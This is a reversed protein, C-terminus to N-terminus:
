SGLAPFQIMGEEVESDDLAILKYEIKSFGPIVKILACSDDGIFDKVSSKCRISNNIKWRRVADVDRYKKAHLSHKVSSGMIEHIVFTRNNTQVKLEAHYSCHLDGTLFTTRHINNEAIFQIIRNRQDEFQSSDWKDEAFISIVPGIIGDINGVFPIATVIFKMKTAHTQLWTKLDQEQAESIMLHDHTQSNHPRRDLRVDMVFFEAGSCHFSYYFKNEGFSHPNHSHQFRQYEEVAPTMYAEVKHKGSDKGKRYCDNFDNAVEHDDLIMYNPLSALLKGMAVDTGWTQDYRQRYLSNSPSIRDDEYDYYIQDGAHIAFSLSHLPVKKLVRSMNGLTKYPKKRNNKNCSLLLFDFEQNPSSNQALSPFTKVQGSIQDNQGFNVYIVYKSEPNLGNFDFVETYDKSESLAKTKVFQGPGDENYLSVQAEESGPHGRVWVRCSTDTTHGIILQVRKAQTLLEGLYDAVAHTFDNDTWYETHSIPNWSSYVAGVNLAIDKHVLDKYAEIQRLPFALIDHKDYFNLWKAHSRMSAPVNKGPFSITEPQDEAFQFLPLNCGFTLFGALWSMDEYDNNGQQQADRIYDYLIRCGLSHALVVLPVAKGGLKQQFLEQMRERVREHVQKYFGGGDAVRRYAIADGLTKVVFSRLGKFGLKHVRNVQNLFDQEKSDLLDAWHVTQWVVRRSLGSQRDDLKEKLEDIMEDAFDPTQEGMGHIVLVALNPTM